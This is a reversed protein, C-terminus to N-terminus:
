QKIVNWQWQPDFAIDGAAVSANQITLECVNDHLRYNFSFCNVTQSCHQSCGLKSRVSVNFKNAAKVLFQGAMTRYVTEIVSGIICLCKIIVYKM